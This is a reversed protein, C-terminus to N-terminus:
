CIRPLIEGSPMELPKKTGYSSHLTVGYIGKPTVTGIIAANQTTEFGQLVRLVKDEDEKAVALVFTGENALVFPDFGLIESVGAVEDCIPVSEDMIEISTQSEKAWENLVAALGGRTADRMAKIQVDHSLLEKVVVSLSACDSQLSTHLDIGKRAAFIVTGHRGIDGSVIISDGEKINFSNINKQTYGFATTNIFVGDVAGKPVVKTDGCVVKTGNIQLEKAMSEVIKQLHSYLFGEEIIFAVSLYRPVAGMMAIDNCSGCISLKGIDGGSFFLPQVTFSDTSVVLNNKQNNELVAGDQSHQLIENKFSAFFLKQIFNGGEFGGNGDSLSVRQM